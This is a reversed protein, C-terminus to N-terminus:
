RRAVRFSSGSGEIGLGHTRLIVDLAQDWPVDHLEVTVRGAVGPQVVVNVEGIRALSRITEVLDADKLSLSIPEGTWRPGAPRTPLVTWGARAEAATAGSAAAHPDDEAEGDEAGGAGGAESEGAEEEGGDAEGEAAPAPQSWPPVVGNMRAYAISQGLHEQLHGLLIMTVDGKTLKMGFLEVEDGLQDMTTAGVAGRAHALARDLAAVVAAKDTVSELGSPDVGEPVEAGLARSLGYAAAAVHMYVESVSRVGEAPRWGYKDAPVAEALSEVQGAARDWWRLYTEKMTPAAAPEEQALSPAAPLAAAAVALAAVLCPALRRTRSM